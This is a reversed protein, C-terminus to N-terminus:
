PVARGVVREIEARVLREVLQPLHAELWEKLIPRLEARVLDEITPGGSHTQTSRGAALRRVLDSVSAAAARATEPGVLPESDPSPAAPAAPQAEPAPAAPSIMMSSDLLLADGDDAPAPPAAKAEPESEPQSQPADEENLIRRISALIDEM